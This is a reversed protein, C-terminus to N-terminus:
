KLAEDCMAQWGEILEAHDFPLYHKGRCGLLMAQTPERMAEIAARAEDKALYWNEPSWRRATCIARAVREVMENM